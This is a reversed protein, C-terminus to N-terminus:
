IIFGVDFNSTSQSDSSSTPGRRILATSQIPYRGLGIEIIGLVSAVEPGHVRSSLM